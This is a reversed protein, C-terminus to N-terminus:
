DFHGCCKFNDIEKPIENLEDIGSLDIETCNILDDKEYPLGWLLGNNEDIWSNWEDVWNYETTM